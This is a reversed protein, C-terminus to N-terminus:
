IAGASLAALARAAEPFHRPHSEVADRLLSRGITVDGQKVATLGLTHLLRAREEQDIDILPLEYRGQAGRALVLNNKATFLTPEAAVARLFLGEAEEFAGRTLKSFGWNNLIGAPADTLGLATRYFADSRDWEERRDALIAEIRYREFSEHVPPVTALAAEAGDFDNIRVLAGALMVGDM